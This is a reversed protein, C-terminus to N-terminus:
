VTSKLTPLDAEAEVEEGAEDEAEDGAEGEAGAGEAAGVAETTTPGVLGPM